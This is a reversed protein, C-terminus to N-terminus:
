NNTKAFSYQGTIAASGADTDVMIMINDGYLTNVGFMDMLSFYSTYSATTIDFSDTELFVDNIFGWLHVTVTNAGPDASKIRLDRITYRTDAARLNLVTIQSDSIATVTVPVDAQESFVGTAGQIADLLGDIIEIKAHVDTLSDEIATTEALTLAIVNAHTATLSDAVSAVAADIAATELVVRSHVVTVSDGVTSVDTGVLSLVNAHTATLSDAIDSAATTIGQIEQHVTSLTDTSVTGSPVTITIPSTAAGDLSITQANIQSIVVLITFLITVFVIIRKM